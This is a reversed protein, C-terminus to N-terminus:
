MILFYQHMEYKMMKYSKMLFIELFLKTDRVSLQLTEQKNLHSQLRRLFSSFILVFQSVKSM